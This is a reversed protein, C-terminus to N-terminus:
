VNSKQHISWAILSAGALVAGPLLPDARQNMIGLLIGIAGLVGIAICTAKM